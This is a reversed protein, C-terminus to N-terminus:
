KLTTGYIWKHMFDTAKDLDYIWLWKDGYEPFLGGVAEIDGIDSTYNGPINITEIKLNSEWIIPAVSIIQTYSLSTEATGLLFQITNPLETKPRSKIISFISQLVFQQRKARYIDSDATRNRVYALAQQGNVLVRDSDALYNPDGEKVGIYNNIDMREQENINIYIGGLYDVISILQYMGVSAYESIDLGFSQNLTKVALKPGGSKYAENIKDKRTGEKFDIPVFSDRLISAMKVTNDTSNISLIIISDSRGAIPANKDSLSPKNDIGFLAINIIDVPPLKEVVGPDIGLEEHNDTEPFTANYKMDRFLYASLGLFSTVVISLALILSVTINFIVLWVVPRKSPENNSESNNQKSIIDETSPVQNEDPGITNKDKDM